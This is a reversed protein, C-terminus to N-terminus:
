IKQNVCFGWLWTETRFNRAIYMGVNINNKPYYKLKTITALGKLDISFGGALAVSAPEEADTIIGVDISILEKLGIVPAKFGYLMDKSEFDYFTGISVSDLRLLDDAKASAVMFMMFASVILLTAVIITTLRKM